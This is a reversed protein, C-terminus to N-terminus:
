FEISARISARRGDTYRANNGTAILDREDFLNSVSLQVNYLPADKGKTLKGRWGLFVTTEFNDDLWLDYGEPEAILEGTVQNRIPFADPVGDYFDAGVGSPTVADGNMGIDQYLRNYFSKSRYKLNSGMYWGKLKGEKFTYRATFNASHHATGPVLQGSSVIPDGSNNTPSSTFTADVYAYGLFFSLSPTPNYYLDLEIGTSETELGPVNLGLSNFTGTVDVLDPYLQRLQTQSLGTVRDNEKEIIFYILQGSLQGDLFEFKVGGELGRGTEPPVSDGYPDLAWGNPSEISEAYNAFVGINENVWFLVGLSPSVETYNESIDSFQSGQFNSTEADLDILDLRVGLLTNLRGNMYQGQAALWAAKTTVVSERERQLQMITQNFAADGALGGIPNRNPTTGGNNGGFNANPNFNGSLSSQQDLNTAADDGANYDNLLIYDKGRWAGAWSGDAAIPTSGYVEQYQIDDSARRDFDLGLLFQQESGAIEKNWSFTTRIADTDDNSSSSQWFPTMYPSPMTSPDSGDYIIPDPEQDLRRVYPGLLNRAPDNNNNSIRSSLYINSADARILNNANQEEHSYAFKVSLEDTIQQTVDALIFIGDRTQELDNAGLTGSNDATVSSYFQRLDDASNINLQPDVLNPNNWASNLQLTGDNYDIISQLASSSLFDVIDPTVPLNELIGTVGYNNTRDTYVGKPNVRLEDYYEAHLRFNTRNTPRYTVAATVGNFEHTKYDQDFDKEQHTAMLRVAVKDNIERNFDISTRFLDNEGYEAELKTKNNSFEAKKGLFNAKGGPAAQGYVLSNAGRVVEVREVNYSNQAGQRPMFEFLQFRTLLGRFRLLRNSFSEGESQVSAVVQALSDIETLNFDELLERNVVSITMPTDKIAQNTRTGALANASYYGSDKEASVVFDPLVYYQEDDGVQDDIAVDGDSSDETGELSFEAVEEDASESIEETTEEVDPLVFVAADKVNEEGSGEEQSYASQFSFVSLSFSLWYITQKPIHNM